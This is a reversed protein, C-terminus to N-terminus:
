IYSQTIATARAVLVAGDAVRLVQVCPEYFNKANIHVVFFWVSNGNIIRKHSSAIGLGFDKCIAQAVRPPKREVACGACQKASVNTLVFPFLNVDYLFSFIVAPADHFAPM